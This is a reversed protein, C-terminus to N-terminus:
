SSYMVASEIFRIEKNREFVHYKKKENADASESLEKETSSSDMQSHNNHNNMQEM